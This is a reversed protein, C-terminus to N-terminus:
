GVHAARTSSTAVATSGYTVCIVGCDGRSRQERRRDVHDAHQLRDSGIRQKPLRMYAAHRAASCLLVEARSSQRGLRQARAGRLRQGCTTIHSTILCVM